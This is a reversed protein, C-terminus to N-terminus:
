WKNKLYSTPICAHRAYGLDVKRCWEFIVISLLWWCARKANRAMWFLGWSAEEQTIWICIFQMTVSLAKLIDRLDHTVLWGTKCLAVNELTSQRYLAGAMWRRKFVQCTDIDAYLMVKRFSRVWSGIKKTFYPSNNHSHKHTTRSMDQNALCRYLVTILSITVIGLEAYM